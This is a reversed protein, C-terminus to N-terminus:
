FWRALLPALLATTLGNLGIGIAAFAAAAGHLPAVQSAAIGSGATGAALGVARWDKVAMVALLGQVCIAGVVGGLIALVASLGPQAGIQHAIAVAIPTTVAKPAMALALSRGGGLARVLAVGTIMSLVSGAAVAVLVGLLSRRVHALNEALPLGLAVTAPGLLLTLGATDRFYRAYSTHTLDLLLIVIVIAILVPSAVPARRALRNVALGCAYAAVTVAMWLAAEALSPGSM